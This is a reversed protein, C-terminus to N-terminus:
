RGAPINRARGIPRSSARRRAPWRPGPRLGEHPDHRPPLGALVARVPHLDEPGLHPHGPRHEAERIAHHRHSVHRRLAPCQGPLDDGRNAIMMGLVDKVFAPAHGPGAAGHAPDFHGAGAGEGRAPSALAGDVAANNREVITGGGKKGYTKKIQDKIHAIAEEAPIINALKFFCTQMVTNIRVGMQAERAVRYADVM